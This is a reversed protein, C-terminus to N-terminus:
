PVCRDCPIAAEPESTSALDVSADASPALPPRGYGANMRSVWSPLTADPRKVRRPKDRPATEYHGMVGSEATTEWGSTASTWRKGAVRHCGRPHTLM